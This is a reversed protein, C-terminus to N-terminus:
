IRTLTEILRANPRKLDGLLYTPVYKVTFVTVFMLEVGPYVGKEYHITGEVLQSERIKEM